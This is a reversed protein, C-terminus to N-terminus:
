IVYKKYGYKKIYLGAPIAMVAYAGFMSFQVLGSRSKSVHLVSQFHRNLVDGLTMSVGWLMFLLVVFGFTLLYRRETFPIKVSNMIKSEPLPHQYEQQSIEPIHYMVIKKISIQISLKKWENKWMSKFAAHANEFSYIARLILVSM